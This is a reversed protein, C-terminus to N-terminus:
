TAKSIASGTIIKQYTPSIPNFDVSDGIRAIGLTAGSGLEIAPADVTAIASATIDANDCAITVDTGNIDINGDNAMKVSASNNVIEIDGNAKFTVKNGVDFNGISVEGSELLPELLPNFPIAFNLSRNMFLLVMAGDISSPPNSAHGYPFVMLVDEIPDDQDIQIQARLAGDKKFTNNIYGKLINM